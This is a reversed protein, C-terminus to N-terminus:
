IVISNFSASGSLFLFIFFCPMAIVQISSSLFNSISASFGVIHSSFLLYLGFFYPLCYIITICALHSFSLPELEQLLFDVQYKLSTRQPLCPLGKLWQRHLGQATPHGHLVNLGFLTMSEVWVTIWFILPLNRINGTFYHLNHLFLIWSSAKLIIRNSKM